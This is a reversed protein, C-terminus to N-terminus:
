DCHEQGQRCTFDLGSIWGEADLSFRVGHDGLLAVIKQRSEATVRGDKDLKFVTRIRRWSGGRVTLPETWVFQHEAYALDQGRLWNLCLLRVVEM